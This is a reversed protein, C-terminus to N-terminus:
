QRHILKKLEAIEESTLPNDTSTQLLTSLLSGNSVLKNFQRCEDAFMLQIKEEANDTPRFARSLVNRSYVIDAVEILQLKLLKRLIAQVTNITFSPKLQVIQSAILPSDANLLIQLVDYEKPKLNQSM